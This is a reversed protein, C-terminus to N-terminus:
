TRSPNFHFDGSNKLGRRIEEILRKSWEAFEEDECGGIVSTDLYTRQKM